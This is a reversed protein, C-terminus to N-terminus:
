GEGLSELFSRYFEEREQLRRSLDQTRALLAAPDGGNNVPSKEARPATLTSMRIKIIGSHVKRLEIANSHLEITTFLACANNHPCAPAMGAYAAFGCACLRKRTNSYNLALHCAALM